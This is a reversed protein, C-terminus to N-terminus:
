SRQLRCFGGLLGNEGPPRRNWQSRIILPPGTTTLHDVLVLSNFGAHETTEMLQTVRPTWDTVAEWLPRRGTGPTAWFATTNTTIASLLQPLSQTIYQPSPPPPPTREETCAAHFILIPADYRKMLLLHPISRTNEAVAAIFHHHM